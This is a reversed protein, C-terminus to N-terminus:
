RIAEGAPTGISYDALSPLQESLYTFEGEVRYLSQTAAAVDARHKEPTRSDRPVNDIIMGNM